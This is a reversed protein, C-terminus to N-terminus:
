KDDGIGVDLIVDCFHENKRQIDLRTMMQACLPHETTDTIPELLSDMAQEVFYLQNSISEFLEFGFARTLPPWTSVSKLSSVEHISVHLTVVYVLCVYM